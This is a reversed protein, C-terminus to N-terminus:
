ELFDTIYNRSCSSWQFPSTDKTLRAAMIRAPEYGPIGCKNGAGDHHMGFSFYIPGLNYGNNVGQGWNTITIQM